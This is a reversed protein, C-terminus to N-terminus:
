PRREVVYRALAAAEQRILEAGARHIVSEAIRGLLFIRVHIDGRITRRTRAPGDAVLSMVGTNTFKERLFAPIHPHNSFRMERRERDYSSDEEFVTWPAPVTKPGVKYAGPKPTYRVRRKVVPGAEERSLIEIKQINPVSKELFALYEPDLFLKEFTAIDCDFTHTLEFQM